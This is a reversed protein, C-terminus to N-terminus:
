QNIGGTRLHHLLHHDGFCEVMWGDALSLVSVLIDFQCDFIWSADYLKHVVVLYKSVTPNVDLLCMKGSRMVERITDVKTGYLNGEYEGHELFRGSRIDRQM